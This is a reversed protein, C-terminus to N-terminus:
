ISNRRVPLTKSPRQLHKTAAHRGIAILEKRTEQPIEFMLSTVEKTDVLITRDGYREMNKRFKPVFAVDLLQGMFELLTEAKHTCSTTQKFAVGWTTEREAHSLLSIPYNEYLGGDVWSHGTAEDHIPVFYLPYCMSARLAKILSLKPTTRVSLELPKSEQLDTTWLRLGKTTPHKALEEFTLTDPFDRHHLLSRLLRELNEGNDLGFSHFLAFGDEELTRVNAFNFEQCLLELTQPRYGLALCFAIFGGASVGCFEQVHQLYGQEQLVLAVGVHALARVGGGAFCLRTPPIHLPLSDRPM